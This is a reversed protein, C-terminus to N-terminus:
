HRTKSRREKGTPVGEELRVRMGYVEDFLDGKSNVAQRELTLDAVGRPRIVFEDDSRECDFERFQQTHARDLADAVRLLAALKSVVMRSERPLGMYEIHTNKPSGRRHYRAIHAVVLTEARTLGFIESNAVLYYSHKHHARSGVFGGVEHLLAAVRLLLRHRPGLGHETKLEDFLRVSLSAVHAAHDPAALYKESLAQASHIVGEALVQDEYGAASRALDIILGDRMTIQSVLARPAQTTLLLAQYVLLAPVLTEADVFPVGYEKAIDGPGMARLKRVLMNLDARSISRLNPSDTQKGLHRAAFRADGGAIVLARVKELHLSTTVSAIINTVQQAILDVARNGSENDAITELLRISGLQLSKSDAIEGNKLVTLLTNGGGVDAILTYSKNIDLTNGVIQRLATLNLRSEESTDIVEVEIGTAVLVRDVFNDANSAERVASTAVARVTDVRYFDLLRRYDRLINVTARMTRSSIKGRRFSDQGLRVTRNLQELIEVAGQHSAEGIVMRIGNSGIDIAAVTKFVEAATHDTTTWSGSDAAM